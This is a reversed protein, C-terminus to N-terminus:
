ILPSPPARLASFSYHQQPPPFEQKLQYSTKQVPYSIIEPLSVQSTLVVHDAHLLSHDAHDDMYSHDILNLDFLGHHNSKELRSSDHRLLHDHDHVILSHGTIVIVAVMLWIKSIWSHMAYIYFNKKSFSPLLKM